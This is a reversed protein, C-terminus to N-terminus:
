RCRLGKLALLRGLREWGAEYFSGVSGNDWNAFFLTKTSLLGPHEDAYLGLLDWRGDELCAAVNALRDALKLASASHTSGILPYARAKREARNRGPPDTVCHVLRSARDGIVDRLDDLSTQTDELVDHCYAAAIMDDDDGYGLFRVRCAVADLHNAYPM